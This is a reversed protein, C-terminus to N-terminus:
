EADYIRRIFPCLAWLFRCHHFCICVRSLFRDNDLILFIQVFRDILGVCQPCRRDFFSRFHFLHRDFQRAVDLKVATILCIYKLQRCAAVYPDFSVSM